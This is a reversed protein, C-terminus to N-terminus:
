PTVEAAIAPLSASVATGAGPASEVELTGALGEVRQRMAMLGFGADPEVGNPPSSAEFGVGDDRVDITVVDEMYSLTVGVRSAGAHKQVNALAEQAVRLLTVEVERHLHHATGTVVVEAPVNSMASWRVAVDNIAEPLGRNELPVPVIANVSRRAETLSERALRTANDLHRQLETPDHKVQGAAELQTVIGTLGQAITDHIERAMRQREDTVGAERAQAVLLAHLGANEELAANLSVLSQRRQESLLAIKEGGITGTGIAVTQIVVLIGFFWWAESTPDPYVIRSNIVVSTLAVGLFAIPAPRLLFAHIFGTIPFVFFSGNQFMLAAALLTLGAFYIRMWTQSERREGARTFMFFVWIASVAALALSLLLDASSQNSDLLCLGTGMLLTVYPVWAVVRDFGREWASTQSLSVEEAALDPLASV